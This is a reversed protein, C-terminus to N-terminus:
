KNSYSPKNQSNHTVQSSINLVQPIKNIKTSVLKLITPNTQSTNPKLQINNMPQPQSSVNQNKLVIIQPSSTGTSNPVTSSSTSSLSSSTPASTVLTQKKPLTIIQKSQSYQLLNALKIPDNAPNTAAQQLNCISNDQDTLNM